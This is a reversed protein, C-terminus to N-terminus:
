RLNTQLLNRGLVKREMQLLSYIKADALGSQMWFYIDLISFYNHHNNRNLVCFHACLHQRYKKHFVFMQFVQVLILVTWFHQLTM